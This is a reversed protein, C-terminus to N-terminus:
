ILGLFTETDLLGSPHNTDLTHLLEQTGGGYMTKGMDSIFSLKGSKEPETDDDSAESPSPDQDVLGERAPCDTGDGGGYLSQGDRFQLEGVHGDTRGPVHEGSENTSTRRHEARM